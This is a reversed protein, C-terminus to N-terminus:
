IGYIKNTGLSEMLANVCRLVHAWCLERHETEIYHYCAYQDSIAFNDPNDGLTIEKSGISWALFADYLLFSETHMRAM